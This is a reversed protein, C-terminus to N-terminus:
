KVGGQDIWSKVLELQCGELRGSPPMPDTTSVMQMYLLSGGSNGPKVYGSGQGLLQNYSGSDALNLGGAPTPGQHCGSGLCNQELVPRIDQEYGLASPNNECNNKDSCSGLLILIVIVFSIRM